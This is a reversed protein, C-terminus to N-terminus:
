IAIRSGVSTDGIVRYGGIAHVRKRVRSQVLLLAAMLRRLPVRSGSSREDHSQYIGQTDILMWARLAGEPRELRQWLNFETASGTATTSRAGIAASRLGIWRRICPRRRRRLALAVPWATRTSRDLGSLRHGAAACRRAEVLEAVPVAREKKGNTAAGSTASSM